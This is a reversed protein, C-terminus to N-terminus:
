RYMLKRLAFSPSPVALINRRQALCSVRQTYQSNFDVKPPGSVKAADGASENASNGQQAALLSSTASVAATAARGGLLAGLGSSTRGSRAGFSAALGSSPRGFTGALQICGGSASASGASSAKVSVAGSDATAAHSVSEAPKHVPAAVSGPAEQVETSANAQAQPKAPAGSPQPRGGFLAGLASPRGPGVGLMIGIGSGSKPAGGLPQLQKPILPPLQKPVLPPAQQPLAQSHEPDAPRKAPASASEKRSQCSDIAGPHGASAEAVAATGEAGMQLELMDEDHKDEAASVNVDEAGMPGADDAMDVDAGGHSAVAAAASFAQEIAANREALAAAASLRRGGDGPLEDPNPVGDVQQRSNQIVEVVEGALEM